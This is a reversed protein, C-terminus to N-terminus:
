KSKKKKVAYFIATAAFAAFGVISVCAGLLLGCTHYEFEVTHHGAEIDLAMGWTNARLIEVEKGDVYAKFGDSYPVSIFLLKRESLDLEGKFGNDEIEINELTSEARETINAVYNEMPQAIVNLEDFTYEGPTNIKIKITDRAEDSYCLNTLFDHNGDYNQYDHTALHFVPTYDESTVSFTFMMEDRQYLMERKLLLKDAARMKEWRGSRKLLEEEDYINEVNLNVFDLYLESGSTPEFTLTIQAGAKDVYIKNDKLEIGKECSVTYDLKKSTLSYTNKDYGSVEEELLINSTLAELKEANSLKSYEGRTMYDSYTFGLPLAYKNEFVSYEGDATEVTKVFEYGYPTFQEPTKTFYYKVAFLADHVTMKNFHQFDYDTYKVSGTEKLYDGVFNDTLSWYFSVGNTKDVVSPNRVYNEYQEFRCFEEDMEDKMQVGVSESILEYAKKVNVFEDMYDSYLGSYCLLSNFIISILCLFAVVGKIRVQSKATFLEKASLFIVLLACLILYQAVMSTNFSYSVLICVALYVATCALLYKKEKKSLAFLPKFMLVFIFSLLFAYGWIWRNSAYAFGNMIRALFPVCLIITFVVFLIKLYLYEGKKKFLLFVSLLLIPIFGTVSWIGPISYTTFRSILMSYYRLDNFLGSGGRVIDTRGNGLFVKLVPVLILCAMLVGIVGFLLFKGLLKFFIKVKRMERDTLVRALVYLFTLIVLMYFFYFNIFASMFVTIIFLVPSKGKLIREAGVLMLPFMIMPMLFFPHRSGAYLGYGCFAYAFAGIMTEFRGRKMYFCFASFSLGALYLRFVILFDYLYATYAEPVFISLLCLPDGLGYYNFTTLVDGGAGIGFDWLPVSFSHEVFINHLLERFWQGIYMLSLYHQSLGDTEWILSKDRIWFPLYVFFSILLFAATFVLIYNLIKRKPSDNEALKIRQLLGAFGSKKRLTNASM